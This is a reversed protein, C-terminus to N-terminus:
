LRFSVAFGVYRRRYIDGQRHLGIWGDLALRDSLRHRASISVAAFDTKLVQGPAVTEAEEGAALTIGASTKEDMYWNMSGVHSFSNEAGHLRSYGLTYAARFNGFYHEVFADYTSVTAADFLRQRWRFEMAWSEGLQRAVQLGLMTGPLIVPNDVKQLEVGGSWGRGLSAFGGLLFQQDSRHFRSHNSIGGYIRSQLDRHWTVTAFQSHWDPRGGSLHEHVAGLSVEWSRERETAGAQWWGSTPFQKASTDRINAVQQDNGPQRSAVSLYLTWVAEYEPALATARELETLAEENRGLWALVQARGFSYDVNGPHDRILEGYHNLAADLDGSQALLRALQFRAADNGPQQVLEAELAAIGGQETHGNGSGVGDQALAFGALPQSALLAIAAVRALTGIV